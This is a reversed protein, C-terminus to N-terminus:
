EGFGFRIRKPILVPMTATANPTLHAQVNPPPQAKPPTVTANPAVVVKVPKEVRAAALNARTIKAIAKTVKEEPLVEQKVETKLEVKQEITPIPTPTPKEDKEDKEVTEIPAEVKKNEVKKKLDELHLQTKEINFTVMLLTRLRPFSLYDISTHHSVRIEGNFVVLGAEDPLATFEIKKDDLFDEIKGEKRLKIYDTYKERILNCCAEGHNPPCKLIFKWIRQTIRTANHKPM